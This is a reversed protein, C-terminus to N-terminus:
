NPQIVYTKRHFAPLLQKVQKIHQLLQPNLRCPDFKIRIPLTLIHTEAVRIVDLHLKVHPFKCILASLCPMDYIAERFSCEPCTNDPLAGEECHCSAKVLYTM